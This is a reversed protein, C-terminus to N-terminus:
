KVENMKYIGVHVLVEFLGLLCTIRQGITLHAEIAVIERFSKYEMM